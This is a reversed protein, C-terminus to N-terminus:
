GAGAYFTVLQAALYVGIAITVWAGPRQAIPRGPDTPVARPTQVEPSRASAPPLAALRGMQRANRILGLVTLGASILGWWGRLLNWNQCRRYAATACDKCYTARETRSSQVVVYGSQRVFTTPAAPSCGCVMCEGPGPPRPAAVAYGTTHDTDTMGTQM